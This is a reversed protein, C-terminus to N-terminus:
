HVELAAKAKAARRSLQLEHLHKDAPLNVSLDFDDTVRKIDTNWLDIGEPVPVSLRLTQGDSMVELQPLVTATLEGDARFEFSQTGSVMEPNIVGLATWWYEDGNPDLVGRLLVGENPTQVDPMPDPQPKQEPFVGFAPDSVTVIRQWQTNWNWDAAWTPGCYSMYNYTNAQYLTDTLIGYGPLGIYGNQHPYTADPSAAGGGPCEVHPMGQCHGTEHVVTESTRGADGLWFQSNVFGGLGAIGIVGSGLNRYPMVAIYHMNADADDLIRLNDMVVLLGSLTPSTLEAYPERVTLDLVQFPNQEWLDDYFVQLNEQIPPTVGNYTIPVMLGRFEMYASEFGIIDPGAGPSLVTRLEGTAAGEEQWLSMQFLMGPETEGLAAELKINCSTQLDDIGTNGFPTVSGWKEIMEGEEPFLQVRCQVEHSTWGADVGIWTRLLGDRKSVLAASREDPGAWNAGNAIPIAIGQNLTIGQITIGLAPEKGEPPGPDGTTTSEEEAATDTSDESGVEAQTTAGVEDTGEASGVEGDATADSGCAILLCALTPLAISLARTRM